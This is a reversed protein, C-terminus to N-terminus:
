PQVCVNVIYNALKKQLTEGYRHAHAYSPQVEDKAQSASEGVKRIKPLLIFILIYKKIINALHCGSNFLLNAFLLTFTVILTLPHAKRNRAGTPDYGLRKELGAPYVM